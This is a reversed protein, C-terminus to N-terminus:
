KVIVDAQSEDANEIEIIMKHPLCTISENVLSIAGHNVCVKDPCDAERVFVKGNEVKVVNYGEKTEVVIEKDDDLSLRAEEKGEVYVVAEGGKEGPQLLGSFYLGGAVVLIIVVVFIDGKKLYIM